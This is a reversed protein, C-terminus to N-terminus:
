ISVSWIHLRMCVSQEYDMTQISNQGFILCIDYIHKIRYGGRCGNNM